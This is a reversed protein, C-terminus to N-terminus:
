KAYKRFFEFDQEMYENEEEKTSIGAEIKHSIEMKQTLIDDSLQLDKFYDYETKTIDYISNGLKLLYETKYIGAELRQKEELYHKTSPYNPNGWPVNMKEKQLWEKLKGEAAYNRITREEPQWGKVQMMKLWERRTMIGEPYRFQKNLTADKKYDQIRKM